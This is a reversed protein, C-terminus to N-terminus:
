YRCLIFINVFLQVLMLLVGFTFSFDLVPGGFVDFHLVQCMNECDKARDSTLIYNVSFTVLNFEVIRLSKPGPNSGTCKRCWSPFCDRKCRRM